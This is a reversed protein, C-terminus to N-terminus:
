PKTVKVRLKEWANLATVGPTKYEWSKLPQKDVPTIRKLETGDLRCTYICIMADEEEKGSWFLGSFAVTDGKQNVVMDRPIIVPSSPASNDRLNNLLLLSRKGTELDIIEPTPAYRTEIYALLSDQAKYSILIRQNDPFWSIREIEPLNEVIKRMTEPVPRGEKLKVIYLSWPQVPGYETEGAEKNKDLAVQHNQHAFVIRKGDLSFSPLADQGALESIRWTGENSKSSLTDAIQSVFVQYDVRFDEPRKFFPPPTLAGIGAIYKGTSDWSLMRRGGWGHNCVGIVEHEIDILYCDGSSITIQQRPSYAPAVFIDPIRMLGKISGQEDVVALKQKPSRAILQDASLRSAEEPTVPKFGSGEVDRYTLFVLPYKANGTWTAFFDNGEINKARAINKQPKTPSPTLDVPITQTAKSIEQLLKRTPELVRAATADDIPKFLYNRVPDAFEGISQTFIVYGRKKPKHMRPEPTYAATILVKDKSWIMVPMYDGSDFAVKFKDPFGYRLILQRVFEKTKTPLEDEFHFGIANYSLLKSQKVRYSISNFFYHEIEESLNVDRNADKKLEDILTQDRNRAIGQRQDLLSALSMGLKVNEIGQFLLSQSRQTQQGLLRGVGIILLLVVFARLSNRRKM